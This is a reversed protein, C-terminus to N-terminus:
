SNTQPQLQITNSNPILSIKQIQLKSSSKFDIFLYVPSTGWMRECGRSSTPDACVRSGEAFLGGPRNALSAFAM